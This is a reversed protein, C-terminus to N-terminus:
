PVVIRFSGIPPELALARRSERGRLTVQPKVEGSDAMRRGALATFLLWLFRMQKRTPVEMAGFVSWCMRVALSRVHPTRSNSPLALWVNPDSVFTFNRSASMDEASGRHAELVCFKENEGACAAAANRIDWENGSEFLM